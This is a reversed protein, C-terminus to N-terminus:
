PKTSATSPTIVYADGEKHFTFGAAEQLLGLIDPLQEDTRFTASIRYQSLSDDDIRVERQYANSLQRAIEHLPAQDFYLIGRTWLVEDAARPSASQTLRLTRKDFVANEGPALILRQGTGEASIAVRGELLTTTVRRDAPYADINFHTGLVQVSVAGAQVSFPHLTDRAVDFRAEGELTVQRGDGRFRRPYTLTSYRNLTVESGDPLRITRVEALTAVTHLAGGGWTQWAMWGGLLVIALCAAAGATCLWLTRRRRRLYSAHLRQRLLPWTNQASYRGRPSRTSAILRDLIRNFDTTTM